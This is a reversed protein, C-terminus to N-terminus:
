GKKQMKELKLLTELETSAFLHHLDQLPWEKSFVFFQGEFKVSLVVSVLISFGWFTKSKKGKLVWM